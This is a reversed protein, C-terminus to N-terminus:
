AKLRSLWILRMLTMAIAYHQGTDGSIHWVNPSAPERGLKTAEADLYRYGNILNDGKLRIEDIVGSQLATDFAMRAM